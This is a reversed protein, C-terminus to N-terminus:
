GALQPPRRKRDTSVRRSLPLQMGKRVARYLRSDSACVDHPRALSCSCRRPGRITCNKQRLRLTWCLAVNEAANTLHVMPPLLNLLLGAQTASFAYQAGVLLCQGGGTYSAITGCQVADVGTYSAIARDQTRCPPIPNRAALSSM